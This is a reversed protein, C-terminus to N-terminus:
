KLPSRIIMSGRGFTNVFKKYHFGIGWGVYSGDLEEYLFSVVWEKVLSAPPFCGDLPVFQVERVM